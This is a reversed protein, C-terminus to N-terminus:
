AAEVGKRRLATGLAIVLASTLLGPLLTGVAIKLGQQDTAVGPVVLRYGDATRQLIIMLQENGHTYGYIM